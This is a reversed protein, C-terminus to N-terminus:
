FLDSSLCSRVEGGVALALVVRLVDLCRGAWAAAARASGQVLGEVVACRCALQDPTM